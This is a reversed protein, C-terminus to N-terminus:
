NGALHSPLIDPILDFGQALLSAAGYLTSSPDLSPQAKSNSKAPFQEFFACLQDVMDDEVTSGPAAYCYAQIGSQRVKLSRMFYGLQPFHNIFWLCTIYYTEIETGLNYRQRSPNFLRWKVKTLISHPAFTL